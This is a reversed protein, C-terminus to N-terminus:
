ILQIKRAFAYALIAIMADICLAGAIRRALPPQEGRILAARQIAAGSDAFEVLKSAGARFRHIVHIAYAVIVSLVALGIMAVEFTHGAKSM